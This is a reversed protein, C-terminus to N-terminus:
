VYKDVIGSRRDGVKRRFIERPAHTSNGGQGVSRATRKGNEVRLVAVIEELRRTNPVASKCCRDFFRTEALCVVVTPFNRKGIKVQGIIAVFKNNANQFIFDGVWHIFIIHRCVNTDLYRLCVATLLYIISHQM